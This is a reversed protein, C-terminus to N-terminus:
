RRRGHPTVPETQIAPPPSPLVRVGIRRVIVVGTPINHPDLFMVRNEVVIIGPKKPTFHAYTVLSRTQRASDTQLQVAPGSLQRWQYSLAGRWRADGVQATLTVRRGVPVRLADDRPWSPDSGGMGVRNSGEARATLSVGPFQNSGDARTPLNLGQPRPPAACATWGAFVFVAVLMLKWVVAQAVTGLRLMRDM